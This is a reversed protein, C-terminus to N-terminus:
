VTSKDRSLPPRAIWIERDASSPLAGDDRDGADGVSTEASCVVARPKRAGGGGDRPTKPDTKVIDDPAEAGRKGCNPGRHAHWAGVDQHRAESAAAAVASPGRRSAGLSRFVNVRVFTGNWGRSPFRTPHYMQPGVTYSLACM